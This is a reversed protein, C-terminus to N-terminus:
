PRGFFDLNFWEGNDALAKYTVDGLCWRQENESWFFRRMPICDPAALRSLMRNALVTIRDADEKDVPKELEIWVRSM